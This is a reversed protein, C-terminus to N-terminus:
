VPEAGAHEDAPRDRTAAKGQPELKANGGPDGHGNGHGGDGDSM